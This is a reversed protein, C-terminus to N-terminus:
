SNDSAEKVTPGDREFFNYVSELDNRFTSDVKFIILAQKGPKECYEIFEFGKLEPFDNKINSNVPTGTLDIVFTVTTKEIGFNNQAKSELCNWFLIMYLVSFLPKM